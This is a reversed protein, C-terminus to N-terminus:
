DHILGAEEARYHTATYRSRINHVHVHAGAPIDQTAEGIPMGYKVVLAGAAIPKDAVKHAMSVDTLTVVGDAGSLATGAPAARLAVQVNDTPSLKLFSSM